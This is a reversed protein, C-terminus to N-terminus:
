EIPPPPFDVDGQLLNQSRLSDRARVVYAAVKGLIEPDIAASRYLNRALTAELDDNSYAKARGYFAQVMVKIRKPVGLDGVGMERLSRDLDRFMSDFLRQALNQGEKGQAALRDMLLWAHLTLMDFRGDLSDAVAGERYFWPNRAAEVLKQYLKDAALQRASPRFLLNLRM